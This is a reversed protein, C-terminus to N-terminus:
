EGYYTHQWLWIEKVLTGSLEKIRLYLTIRGFDLFYIAHFQMDFDVDVEFTHTSHANSKTTIITGIRLDVLANLNAGSAACHECRMEGTETNVYTNEEVSDSDFSVVEGYAFPPSYTRSYNLTIATGLDIKLSFGMLIILFLLFVHQTKQRLCGKSIGLYLSCKKYIVEKKNKTKKIETLKM